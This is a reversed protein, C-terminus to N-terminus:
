AQKGEVLGELVYRSEGSHGGDGSWCVKFYLGSSKGGRGAPYGREMRWEIPDVEVIPHCIAGVPTRLLACPSTEDREFVGRAERRCIGCFWVWDAVMWGVPCVLGDITVVPNGSPENPHYIVEM